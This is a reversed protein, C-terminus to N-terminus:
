LRTFILVCGISGKFEYGESFAQNIAKEISNQDAYCQRTVCYPREDDYFPPDIDDVAPPEPEEIEEIKITVNCLVLEGRLAAYIDTNGFVLEVSDISASEIIGGYLKKDETEFKYTAHPSKFGSDLEFLGNYGEFQYPAQTWITYKKYSSM